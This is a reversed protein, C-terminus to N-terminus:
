GLDPVAAGSSYRQLDFMIIFNILKFTFYVPFFLSTFKCLLLLSSQLKGMKRRADKELAVEVLKHCVCRDTM